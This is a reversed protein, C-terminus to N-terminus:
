KNIYAFEFLEVIGVINENATKIMEMHTLPFGADNYTYESTILTGNEQYLQTLENNKNFSIHHYLWSFGLEGYLWKPTTCHYFPAKKDDHTSIYTFNIFSNSESEYQKVSKTVLNGNRYEFQTINQLNSWNLTYSVPQGESNIDITRTFISGSMDQVIQNGNIYYTTSGNGDPHESQIIIKNMSEDYIIAHNVWYKATMGDETFIEERTKIIRNQDDYEFKLQFHISSIIEPLQIINETEEGEENGNDNYCYVQVGNIFIVNVENQLIGNITYTVDSYCTCNAQNPFGQQTINLFGNIFTHTVNVTTFDCTVEFNYYTIKVGENTFKVDARDSLENNTAKTQVCPTSSVNLVQTEQEKKVCSVTLFAGLGLLVAIKKM